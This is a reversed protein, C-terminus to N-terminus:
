TTRLVVYLYPVDCTMMDKRVTGLLLRGRHYLGITVAKIKVGSTSVVAEVNCNTFPKESNQNIAVHLVRGPLPVSHNHMYKYFELGNILHAVWLPVNEPSVFINNNGIHLPLM